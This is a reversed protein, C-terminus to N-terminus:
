QIYRTPDNRNTTPERTKPILFRMSEAVFAMLDRIYAPSDFYEQDRRKEEALQNSLTQAAEIEEKTHGSEARARKNLEELKKQAEQQEPTLKTQDGEGDDKSM